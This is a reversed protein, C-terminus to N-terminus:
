GKSTAKKFWATTTALVDMLDQASCRQDPYEENFDKAIQELENVLRHASARIWEAREGTPEEGRKIQESLEKRTEVSKQISKNNKNVLTQFVETIFTLKLPDM